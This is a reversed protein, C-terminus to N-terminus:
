IQVHALKNLDCSVCTNVARNRTVAHTGAPLDHNKHSRLVMKTCPAVARIKETVILQKDLSLCRMIKM